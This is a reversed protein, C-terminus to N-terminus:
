TPVVLMPSWAFSGGEGSYDVGIRVLGRGDGVTRYGLWLSFLQEPACQEFTRNVRSFFIRRFGFFFRFFVTRGTKKRERFGEGFCSKMERVANRGCSSITRKASRTSNDYYIRTSINHRFARRAKRATTFAHSYSRRSHWIRARVRNVVSNITNGARTLRLTVAAFKGVGRASAINSISFTLDFYIHIHILRSRLVSDYFM